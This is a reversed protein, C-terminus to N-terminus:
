KKLQFNCKAGLGVLITYVSVVMTIYQTELGLEMLIAKYLTTNVSIIGM